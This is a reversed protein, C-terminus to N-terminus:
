EAVQSLTAVLEGVISDKVSGFRMAGGGAECAAGRVCIVDVSIAWLGPLDSGSLSGALWAEKGLAHLDNVFARLRDITFYDLLGKGIDKRFTDILLGDCGIEEVLKPGDTLPDFSVAFEEEPFVAPYVKCEPCWEKVTRVLNRGLYAAAKPDLGALGCKVYNAGAVAVGLAAQCASSRVRQEEGINTSIPLDGFGDADLAERVAKINLPYPTGLASGPHEVDAIHAGGRAAALAEVPGRVSVLLRGM